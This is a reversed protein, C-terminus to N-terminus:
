KLGGVEYDKLITDWAEENSQEHIWEVLRKQAQFSIDSLLTWHDDVWDGLEGSLGTEASTSPEGDGIGWFDKCLETVQDSEMRWPRDTM